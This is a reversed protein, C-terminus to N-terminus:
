PVTTITSAICTLLSLDLVGLWELHKFSFSFHGDRLSALYNWFLAFVRRVRLHGTHSAAGVGSKQHTCIIEIAFALSLFYSPIPTRFV